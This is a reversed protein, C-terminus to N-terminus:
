GTDVDLWARFGGQPGMVVDFLHAVTVCDRGGDLKPVVLPHILTLRCGIPRTYKRSPQVLIGLEDKDPGRLMKLQLAADLYEKLYPDNEKLLFTDAELAQQFFVVVMLVSATVADDEIACPFNHTHTLRMGFASWGNM